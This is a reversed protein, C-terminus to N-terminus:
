RGAYRLWFIAVLGCVTVVYITQASRDIVGTMRDHSGTRLKENSLDALM